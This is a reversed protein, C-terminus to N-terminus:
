VRRQPIQPTRAKGLIKSLLEERNAKPPNLAEEFAKNVDAKTLKIRM